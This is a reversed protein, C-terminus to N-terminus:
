RQSAQSRARESSDEERLKTAETLERMEEPKTSPPAAESKVTASPLFEPVPEKFYRDIFRQFKDRGLMSEVAQFFWRWGSYEFEEGSYEKAALLTPILGEVVRTLTQAKAIEIKKRADEAFANRIGERTTLDKLWVAMQRRNPPKIKFEQSVLEAVRDWSYGMRKKEVAFLRVELPYAKPM